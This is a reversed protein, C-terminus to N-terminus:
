CTSSQCIEIALSVELRPPEEFRPRYRAPSGPSPGIVIADGIKGAMAAVIQNMARVEAILQAEDRTEWYHTEDRVVVGVGLEAAHDLLLDGLEGDVQLILLNDLHAPHHAHPNHHQQRNDPKSNAALAPRMPM